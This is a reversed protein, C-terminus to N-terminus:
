NEGVHWYFTNSAFLAEMLHYKCTLMHRFHCSLCDLTQSLCYSVPLLVATAGLFACPDFKAKAWFPSLRAKEGLVGELCQFSRPSGQCMPHPELWHWHVWLYTVRVLMKTIGPNWSASLHDQPIELHSTRVGQFVQPEWRPSPTLKCAM